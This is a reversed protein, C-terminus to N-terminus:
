PFLLTKIGIAVLVAGGIVQALSPNVSSIRRGITYGAFCIILTVTGIIAACLLLKQFSDAGATVPLTIGITLADISTAFAMLILSRIDFVDKKDDIGKKSDIMMKIGIFSLIFFVIINDVSGVAKSGAQGISWGLVPMFMQFLAFIFSSILAPFLRKTRDRMGYMASAAFADQAVAAGIILSSIVLM